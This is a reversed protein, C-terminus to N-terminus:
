LVGYYKGERFTDSGQGYDLMIGFPVQGGSVKEDDTAAFSVSPAFVNLLMLLATWLSVAKKISRKM